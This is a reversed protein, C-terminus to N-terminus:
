DDKGIIWYHYSVFRGKVTVKVKDRNIGEPLNINILQYDEKIADEYIQKGDLLIEFYPDDLNFNVKRYIISQELILKVGDFSKGLLCTLQQNSSEPSLNVSFTEFGETARGADYIGKIEHLTQIFQSNNLNARKYDHSLESSPDGIDIEDIVNEEFRVKTLPSLDISYLIYKDYEGIWKFVHPDEKSFSILFNEVTTTRAKEKILLYKVNNHFNQILESRETDKFFTEIYKAFIPNLNPTLFVFRIKDTGYVISKTNEISDFIETKDPLNEDLWEAIEMGRKARKINKNIELFLLMEQSIFFLSFIILMIPLIGQIKENVSKIGLFSFAFILPFLSLLHRNYGVGTFTILSDGIILILLFSAVSIAMFKNKQTFGLITFIFFLPPLTYISSAQSNVGFTEGPMYLGLITSKFHNIFNITGINLVDAISGYHFLIQSVTGQSVKQGILIRNIFFPCVFPILGIAIQPAHKRNIGLYLSSLFFYYLIGESRALSPLIAFLLFFPLCGLFALAGSITLFLLSMTTCSFFNYFIPAFLTSLLTIPLALEPFFRNFFRYLFLASGLLMILNILYTWFIFSNTGKFGLWYGLSLIFSYPDLGRSVASEEPYFSLPSGEIFAKTHQLLIYGDESFLLFNGDSSTYVVQLLIVWLFIILLLILHFKRDRLIEKFPLWKGETKKESKIKNKKM